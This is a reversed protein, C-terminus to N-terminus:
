KDGPTATFLNKIVRFFIPLLKAYEYIPDSLPLGIRSGVIAVMHFPFIGLSFQRRLNKLERWFILLLDNDIQKM